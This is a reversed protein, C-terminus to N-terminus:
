RYHITCTPHRSSFFYLYSLCRVLGSGPAVSMCRDPASFSSYCTGPIPSLGPAYRAEESPRTGLYPYFEQNVQSAIVSSLQSRDAPLQRAFTSKDFGSTATGNEPSETTTCRPEHAKDAGNIDQSRTRQQRSEQQVQEHKLRNGTETSIGSVSAGSSQSQMSYSRNRRSPVGNAEQTGEGRKTGTASASSSPRGSGKGRYGSEFYQATDAQTWSPLRVSAEIKYLGKKLLELNVFEDLHVIVEVTGWTCFNDM